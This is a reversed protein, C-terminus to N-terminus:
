NINKTITVRTGGEPPFQFKVEDILSRVIFIGRGIEKLLNQEELPNPIDRPNFGKGEDSVTVIIKGLDCIIAITVYKGKQLKNGHKIANNVLETVAIALDAITDEPVGRERLRSELFEDAVAIQDLSSKFTISEELRDTDTMDEGSM